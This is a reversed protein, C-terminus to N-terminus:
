ELSVGGFAVDFPDPLNLSEFLSELVGVVEGMEAHCHANILDDSAYQNKADIMRGFRNVDGTRFAVIDSLYSNALWVKSRALLRSSQDTLQIQKPKNM